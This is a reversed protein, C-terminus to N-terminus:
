ASTPEQNSSAAGALGFFELKLALLAGAGVVLLLPCRPLGCPGASGLAPGEPDLPCPDGGQQSMARRPPAVVTHRTGPLFRPPCTPLPASLSPPRPEADELLLDSSLVSGLSSIQSFLGTLSHPSAPSALCSCIFCTVAASPAVLAPVWQGAKRLAGEEQTGEGLGGGFLLPCLKGSPRHAM